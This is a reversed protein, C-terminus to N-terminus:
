LLELITANAQGGGECMTQLGYQINNDRMHHLMTTLIRAGSGGLPHGLAIAGGNPNLKKEDAGIDKLWAMPVPAFAENVEFVGIQDLSLGSKKLAKQTAPIPATLMIVPDAGALVATHVKALPKLGLEKAKEASMILLAASGDSIQSSNGAHIVGDEKFAPKINAMAELTGGRRIGGDELVVTDNGDADKTKIGVIQDKFAGADQAAAAKEHSRLSFEDLQTRSFGWQEAIMEAGIGQNPTKDYRAKFSEGYPNGGNALSSGMPTRSMSEVGGAVVVDYHGAVVGAVAFHLSQQSSGCQRDVTVGPVTEPWGASLVATRAIDLAQEGAQMVCGWIVDDVLAPDVGAREVLANLVQASLEAPHIGSLAGNRKGVPSRVAEVIVAEAM